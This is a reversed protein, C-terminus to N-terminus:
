IKVGDDDGLVPSRRNKNLKDKCDKLLFNIVLCFILTGM